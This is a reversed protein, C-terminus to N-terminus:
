DAFNFFDKNREKFIAFVTELTKEDEVSVYAEEEPDDTEAIQLIIVEGDQDDEECPYLVVYEEGEYEILDLFEMSVPTGNEDELIIVNDLEEMSSREESM